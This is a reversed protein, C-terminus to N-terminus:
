KNGKKITKQITLNCSHGTTEYEINISKLNPLYNWVKNKYKKKVYLVSVSDSSETRYNSLLEMELIGIPVQNLKTEKLIRGFSVCGRRDIHLILFDEYMIELLLGDQLSRRM